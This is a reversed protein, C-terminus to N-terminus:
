DGEPRNTTLQIVALRAPDISTLLRVLQKNEHEIVSLRENIEKLTGELRDARTKQAEAEERWVKATNTRFAAVVVVLAAIVVTATGAHNFVDSPSM